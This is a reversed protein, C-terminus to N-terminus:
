NEIQKHCMPCLESHCTLSSAIRNLSDISSTPHEKFFDSHTSITTLCNYVDYLTDPRKNLLATQVEQQLKQPVSSQKLISNLTEGTHESIPIEQLAKVKVIERDFSKNAEIISKQLWLDIDTSSKRRRWTGISDETTAGNSCWQRFLYASLKTANRGQMDHTIRIGANFPDEKKVEIERPTIISLDVIEDSINLKHFGAIQNGLQREAADLLNSIRIHKFDAKPVATIARNDITLFRMLNGTFVNQYWYNLHPVILLAYKNAPIKKLYKHPLGAFALLKGTAAPNLIIQRRGHLIGIENDKSVFFSILEGAEIEVPESIEYDRIKDLVEDKTMIGKLESIKSM